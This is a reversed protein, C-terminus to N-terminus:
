ANDAEEVELLCTACGCALRQQRFLEMLGFTEEGARKLSDSDPQDRVWVALGNQDRVQTWFRVSPETPDREAFMRM